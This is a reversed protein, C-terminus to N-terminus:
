GSRVDDSTSRAVAAQPPIRALQVMLIGAAIVAAGIADSLGFREGLLAAAIAVGFFPSLFHFTAARVAGIRTVLRFWVFTAAIGPVLVTYLFATVLRPSWDVAAPWETLAAVPLLAAAGVGMQLGVIMLVNRGGGAGRMALTAATLAIVGGIALILGILDLGHSIRVSMIVAVGIMGLILGAFAMPRLPERLVLWGFLAVLLPMTSAVISSASAEIRQMALWSLGLYLANQCIGFVVVARWEGRTLRWSQGMLRALGVAIVASLAFRIVLATLPPAALVIMRTSTFASAWMAAFAVGMVIARIDM